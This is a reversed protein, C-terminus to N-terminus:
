KTKVTTAEATSIDIDPCAGIFVVPKEGATGSSLYTNLKTTFTNLATQLESHTVLSKTNGNLNIQPANININDDVDVQINTNEGWQINITGDEGSVSIKKNEDKGHQITVNGSCDANITNVVENNQTQEISITGDKKIEKNISINSSLFSYLFPEDLSVSAGLISILGKEDKHELSITAGGRTLSATCDRASNYSVGGLDDFYLTSGDKNFLVVPLAKMGLINYASYGTNNIDSLYATSSRPVFLLCLANAANSTIQCSGSGIYLVEVNSYLVRVKNRGSISEITARGESLGIIRGVDVIILNSMKEKFETMVTTPLSPRIDM